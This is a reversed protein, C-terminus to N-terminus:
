FQKWDADDSGMAIRSPAPKQTPAAQSKTTGKEVPKTWPRAPGRREVAASKRPAQDARPVALSPSATATRYKAMADSLAQSRDAISKSAATAEEVLAANQQTMEDLQMVAKNVQDIGSSQEQNSAAIEAIIDSVKKVATVILELTQGSQAVLTSGEEVKQVSDRILGKIEKAATASRGALSRVESAVVAFGRGQEGARAAEVAANLALLNTQFAIEDIVSIIDAIRKSAENIESMAKVANSVVTGGKDAQDRAALALQNAQESNDANQRVRATMEEMSSATQELSSAQAETRESLDLNGQAIEQVGRAVESATSSVDGVVAAFCDILENIKQSLTAYFGIKGSPDIRARMDGGIVAAVVREVERETINYDRDTAMVKATVADLSNKLAANVQDKHKEATIDTAFKIIKGTKGDAGPVPNYSAELWAETGDKRIRKCQAKAFEGRGLKEWFLRYEESERCEQTLFMSHHRGVIQERSYGVISLFNSNAGLITGDPKFEVVAQSRNIAAVLGLIDSDDSTSVQASAPKPRRGFISLMSKPIDPSTM